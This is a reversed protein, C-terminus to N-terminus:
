YDQYNLLLNTAILDADALVSRTLSRADIYM